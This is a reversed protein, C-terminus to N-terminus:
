IFHTSNELTALAEQSIQKTSELEAALTASKERESNLDSTRSDIEAIFM